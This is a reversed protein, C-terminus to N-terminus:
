GELGKIVAELEAKAQEYEADNPAKGQWGAQNEMFSVGKGKVTKALVVTFKGKCEKAAALADKIQQIDHGDITIVNAGFAKFKEDLPATPMVKETSGDIQLGNVDIFAWFNDLKDKNACRIAEWVQGETIEGEGLISYVRYDKKGLKGAMAMGVAVSVGQGLSGTSMDVGPVDM